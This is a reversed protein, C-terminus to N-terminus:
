PKSLSLCSVKLLNKELSNLPNLSRSNIHSSTCSIINFIKIKEMFVVLSNDFLVLDQM